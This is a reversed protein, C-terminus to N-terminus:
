ATKKYFKRKAKRIRDLGPPDAAPNCVPCHGKEDLLNDCRNCSGYKKEENEVYRLLNEFNNERNSKGM